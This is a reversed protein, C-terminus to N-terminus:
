NTPSIAVPTKLGNCTKPSWLGIHNNKSVTELMKFEDKYKYPLEYTYEYAYGNKIMDSNLMFINQDKVGEKKIYVYALVRGYRDLNGQTSDLEIAVDRGSAINKLYNSSEKGFCEVPKRPDVTEPTNIGLLRVSETDKIGLVKEGDIREIDLTDGDVVKVIKYEFNLSSLFKQDVENQIAIESKPFIDGFYYAYEASAFSFIAMIIVFIILRLFTKAPQGISSFDFLFM